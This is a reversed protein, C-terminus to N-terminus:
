TFLSIQTVEDEVQELNKSTLSVKDNV